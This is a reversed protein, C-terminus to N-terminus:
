KKKLGQYLSFVSVSAAIVSGTITLIDKALEMGKSTDSRTLDSFQKEMNLRNVRKRLEDDSMSKVDPVNKSRRSKIREVSSLAKSAENTVKGLEEATRRVGWKQGKIGHHSLYDDFRM